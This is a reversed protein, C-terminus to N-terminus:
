KSPKMSRILAQVDVKKSPKKKAPLKGSPTEKEFRKAIEPRNAYMFGRQAQSQFPVADGSDSGSRGM